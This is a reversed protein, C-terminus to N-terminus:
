KNRLLADAACRKYEAIWIEEDKIGVNEIKWEGGHKGHKM